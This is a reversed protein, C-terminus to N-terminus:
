EADHRIAVTEQAGLTQDMYYYHYYHRTPERRSEDESSGLDRYLQHGGPSAGQPCPHTHVHTHTHTHASGTLRTLCTTDNVPRFLRASSEWCAQGQWASALIM